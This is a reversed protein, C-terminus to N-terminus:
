RENRGREAVDRLGRTLLMDELAQVADWAERDGSWPDNVIANQREAPEVAGQDVALRVVARGARCIAERRTESMHKQYTRM